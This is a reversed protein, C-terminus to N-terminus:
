RRLMWLYQPGWLSIIVAVTIVGGLLLGFAVALLDSRLRTKDRNKLLM